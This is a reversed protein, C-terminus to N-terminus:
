RGSVTVAEAFRLDLVLEGSADTVEIRHDLDLRGCQVEVCAMERVNALAYAYAADANALHVGEEDRTIVDDYLTFFYKPM